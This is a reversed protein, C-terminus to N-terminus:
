SDTSRDEEHEAPGDDVIGHSLGAEVLMTRCYSAQATSVYFGAAHRMTGFLATRGLEEVQVVYHIGQSNLLDEIRRAASISSALYIQEPDPLNEADIRGVEVNDRAGPSAALGPADRVMM